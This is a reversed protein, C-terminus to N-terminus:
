KNSDRGVTVIRLPMWTRGGCPSGGSSKLIDAGASYALFRPIVLRMGGRSEPPQKGVNLRRDVPRWPSQIGLGLPTVNGDVTKRIGIVM